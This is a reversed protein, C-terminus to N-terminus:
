VTNTGSTEFYSGSLRHASNIQHDIKILFENSDYPSPLYGQWINGPIGPTPQPVFRDLINMAVSDLRDPCIKGVIGNCTFVQGTAPDIPKHASQSFDGTRELPTPVVATNLLTSMTQRLGSYSAFFFTRNRQLAGGLNAGFQNGHFPAKPLTSDWDKANFVKNR